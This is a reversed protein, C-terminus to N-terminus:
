CRRRWGPGTHLGAAPPSSPAPPPPRMGDRRDLPRMCAGGHLQELELLTIPSKAHRPRVGKRRRFSRMAVGVAPDATPPPDEGHGRHFWGIAARALMLASLSRGPAIDLLFAVVTAPAAPLAQRGHAACWAEFERWYGQYVEVTRKAWAHGYAARARELFEPPLALDAAPVTARAAPSRLALALTPPRAPPNAM